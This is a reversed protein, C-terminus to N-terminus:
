VLRERLAKAVAEAGEQLLDLCDDIVAAFAKLYTEYRQESDKTVTFRM